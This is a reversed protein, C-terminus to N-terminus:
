FESTVDLFANLVEEVGCHITAGAKSSIAFAEASSSYSNDASLDLESLDCGSPTAYSETIFCNTTSTLQIDSALVLDLHPEIFIKDRWAIIPMPSTAGPKLSRTSGTMWNPTSISLKRLSPIKILSGTRGLLSRRNTSPTSPVDSLNLPPQNNSLMSGTRSMLSRRNFSPTEEPSQTTLPADPPPSLISATAGFLSRRNFSPTQEPSTTTGSPITAEEPININNLPMPVPFKNVEQHNKIFISPHL